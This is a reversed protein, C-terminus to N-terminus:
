THPIFYCPRPVTGGPYALDKYKSPANASDVLKRLEHAMNLHPSILSSGRDRDLRAARDSAKTKRSQQQSECNGDPASASRKM